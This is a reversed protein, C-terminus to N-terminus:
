VSHYSKRRQMIAVNALTSKCWPHEGGQSYQGREQNDTVLFDLYGSLIGVIDDALIRANEAM